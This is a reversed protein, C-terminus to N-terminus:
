TGVQCSERRTDRCGNAPSTSSKNKELRFLQYLYYISGNITVQNIGPQGIRWLKQLVASINSHGKMGWDLRKIKLQKMLSGKRKTVTLNVEEKLEIGKEGKELRANRQEETEAKRRYRDGENRKDMRARKQEETEPVPSKRKRTAEM